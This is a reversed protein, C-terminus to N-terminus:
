IWTPKDLLKPLADGVVQKTITRYYPWKLKTFVALVIEADKPHIGQLMDIFMKERKSQLGVQKFPCNLFTAFQGTLRVLEFKNKDEEAFTVMGEPMEGDPLGIRENLYENFQIALLDNVMAQEKGGINKLAEVREERTKMQHIEKLIEHLRRM